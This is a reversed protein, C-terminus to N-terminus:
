QELRAPLAKRREIFDLVLIRICGMVPIAVLAGLLGGVSGGLLVAVFVLLPSMNTSNAQVRPQVAYNEIQQYLIYYGLIILAAPVSTFLAVITTIVAGITHGVMPILGCIFIIVVLALPYSIDLIFLMPAILAAAVAALVVQGNVYGQVVKNMKVVLEEAHPRQKPEILQRALRTWKPGEILMMVTLVLVTLMSLLSSGVKGVTSLASSGINGVKSSLQDSLADVDDQLNYTEVFKGLPGEGNKTSEVLNPVEKVFTVTQKSLPPLVAVLFGFFILVVLTMSIATALNRNDRKRGPLHRALGKIPSNLALSLFFAIGILALVNSMKQLLGLALFAIVVVLIFRIITHTSVTVQFDAKDKPFLRAM